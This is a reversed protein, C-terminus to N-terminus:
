QKMFAAYLHNPIPYNTLNRRAFSERSASDHFRSTGQMFNEENEGKFEGCM